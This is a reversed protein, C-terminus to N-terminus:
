RESELMEKLKLLAERAASIEAKKKSTGAGSGLVRDNVVVEVTFVKEHDRGEECIVRYRPLVNYKSQSLEQLETKYDIYRKEKLTKNIVSLYLGLIVDKASNFGGDIFVAGFLAELTNALISTKTRGGTEREGKGLMIHGGLDIKNAVQSLVDGSVLYSKMVAMESEMLLPRIVYLFEAIVLGLVTDGLFELRENYFGETDPHEHYFSKHLLADKLLREDKFTYGLANEIEM